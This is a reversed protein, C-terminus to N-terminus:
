AESITTDCNDFEESASYQISYTKSVTNAGVRTELVVEFEGVQEESKCSTGEGRIFAFPSRYSYLTLKEGPEVVVADVETDTEPDYIGSVDDNDAYNTGEEDSPYPVDGIFLLQTIAAPGSGQNEVTVFAEKTVKDSSSDWMKEPQNRGIGMEVISLNPQISLSTEVVTEESKLAVVRYEGPEYATGIEFSVQRAGAAVDRTGFLEGNPQILNVQDVDAEVSLEVVLAPGEVAVRKLPGQSDPSTTGDGPTGSSEGNNLCGAVSALAAGAVTQLANRRSIYPNNRTM